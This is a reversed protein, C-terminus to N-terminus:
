VYLVGGVVSGNSLTDAHSVVPVDNKVFHHNEGVSSRESMVKHRESEPLLELSRVQYIYIYVNYSSLGLSSM